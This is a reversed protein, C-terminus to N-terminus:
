AAMAPKSLARVAQLSVAGLGFLYACLWALFGLVPIIGVIIFVIMAVGAWVARAGVTPPAADRRMRARARIAGTYVAGVIALPWFLALAAGLVFALPIGLLTVMLLVIVFPALVALALGLGLMSFPRTRLAEATDNMLRPFAAAIVVATLFLGFLLSASLWIALGALPRM